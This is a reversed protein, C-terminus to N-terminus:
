LQGRTARAIEGVFYCELFLYLNRGGALRCLCYNTNVDIGIYLLMDKVYLKDHM